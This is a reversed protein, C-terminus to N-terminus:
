SSQSMFFVLLFNHYNTIGSLCIQVLQVVRHQGAAWLIDVNVAKREEVCEMEGRQETEM